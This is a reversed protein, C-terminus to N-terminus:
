EGTDNVAQGTAQNQKAEEFSPNDEQHESSSEPHGPIVYRGNLWRFLDVDRCRPSCFPRWKKVRPQGCLPCLAGRKQGSSSPSLSSPDSM